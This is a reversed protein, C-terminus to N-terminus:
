HAFMAESLSIYIRKFILAKLENLFKWDGKCFPMQFRRCIKRKRNDAIMSLCKEYKWM